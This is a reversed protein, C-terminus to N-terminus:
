SATNSSHDPHNPSITEVQVIYKRYFALLWVSDLPSDAARCFRYFFEKDGVWNAPWTKIQEVSDEPLLRLPTIRVTVRSGLSEGFHYFYLGRVIREIVADHSDKSMPVAHAEGIYIGAPSRLNVLKGHSLIHLQLKKNRAITKRSNAWLPHKVPLDWCVQM